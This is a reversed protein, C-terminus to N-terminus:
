DDEEDEFDEKDIIKNIIEEKLLGDNHLFKIKNYNEEGCDVNLNSDESIITSIILSRQSPSAKRLREKFENNNM